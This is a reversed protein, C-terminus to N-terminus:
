NAAPATTPSSASVTERIAQAVANPVPIAKRGHDTIADFRMEAREVPIQNKYAKMIEEGTKNLALTLAERVDRGNLQIVKGIYPRAVRKAIADGSEYFYQAIQRHGEEHEVLKSPPNPPLWITIHLQLTMEVRGVTLRASAGGAQVAQGSVSASSLFEAACLASESPKLQPMEPPPRRPDFTRYKVDVPLMTIKVGDVGRAATESGAVPATSAVFTPSLTIVGIMAWIVHKLLNM